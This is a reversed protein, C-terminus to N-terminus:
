SICSCICPGVGRTGYLRGLTLLITVRKFLFPRIDIVHTCRNITPPFGKLNSKNTDDVQVDECFQKDEQINFNRSVGYWVM